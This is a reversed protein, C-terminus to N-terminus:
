APHIIGTFEFPSSTGFYCFKQGSKVNEFISAKYWFDEENDEQGLYKYIGQNIGYNIRYLKGVVLELEYHGKIIRKKTNM